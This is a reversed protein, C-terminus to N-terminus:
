GDRNEERAGSGRHSQDIPAEQTSSVFTSSGRRSRNISARVNVPADVDPQRALKEISRRLRGSWNM